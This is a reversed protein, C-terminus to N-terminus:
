RILEGEVSSHRSQSHPHLTVTQDAKGWVGNEIMGAIYGNWPNLTMDELVSLEEFKNTIFNIGMVILSALLVMEITMQGKSNKM